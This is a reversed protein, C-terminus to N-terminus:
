PWPAAAVPTVTVVRATTRLPLVAALLATGLGLTVAHAGVGLDGGGDTLEFLAWLHLLLALVTAAVVVPRLARAGLGSPRAALALLVTAALLWLLVLWGLGAFYAEAVLADGLGQDRVADGIEAFTVTPGGTGWSLFVYGAFALVTALGGVVAAAVHTSTRLEPPPGTAPAAGDALRHVVRPGLAGACGLLAAGALWFVFGFYPQVESTAPDAEPAQDVPGVTTARATVAGGGDSPEWGLQVLAVVSVLVALGVVAIAAVRATATLARHRLGLTAAVALVCCLVTLGIALTPFFLDALSGPDPADVATGTVDRVTDVASSLGVTERRDVIDGPLSGGSVFLQTEVWERTLSWLAVATGVVAVAIGLGPRERRVFGVTTPDVDVTQTTVFM